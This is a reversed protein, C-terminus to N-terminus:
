YLRSSGAVAHRRARRASLEALVPGHCAIEDGRALIASVAKPQPGPGDGGRLDDVASRAARVGAAGAVARGAVQM